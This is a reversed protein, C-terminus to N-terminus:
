ISRCPTSSSSSIARTKRKKEALALQEAKVLIIDRHQEKLAREKSVFASLLEAKSESLELIHSSELQRADPLFLVNGFVCPKNNPYNLAFNDVEAAVAEHENTQRLASITKIHGGFAVPEWVVLDGFSPKLGSVKSFMDIQSFQLKFYQAFGLRYRAHAAIDSFYKRESVFNKQVIPPLIPLQKRSLALEELTPLDPKTETEVAIIVPLM